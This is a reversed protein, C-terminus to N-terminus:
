EMAGTRKEGEKHKEDAKIDTSKIQSAERKYKDYTNRNHRFSSGDYLFAIIAWVLLALPVIITMILNRIESKLHMFYAVIYFAKALMLIIIAGKITLKLGGPAMGIMSVGLALEVITLILLIWFTRWIEKTGGPNDHVANAVMTTSHEM